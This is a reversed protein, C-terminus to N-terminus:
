SSPTGMNGSAQTDTESLHQLPDELGLAQKKLEALKGAYAQLRQLFQSLFPNAKGVLNWIENADSPAMGNLDDSSIKTAQVVFQIPFPPDLILEIMSPPPAKENASSLLEELQKVTLETATYEVGSIVQSEKKM